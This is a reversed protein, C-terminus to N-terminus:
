AAPESTTVIVPTGEPQVPPAQVVAPLPDQSVTEGGLPEPEPEAVTEQVSFVPAWLLPLAVTAPLVKETVWAAAGGGSHVLKVIEGV